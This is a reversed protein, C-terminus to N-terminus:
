RAPDEWAQVIEPADREPLAVESLHLRQEKCVPMGAMYMVM